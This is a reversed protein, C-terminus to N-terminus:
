GKFNGIYAIEVANKKILKPYKENKDPRATWGRGEYVNFDSGALFSFLQSLIFCLWKLCANIQFIGWDSLKCKKGNIEINYTSKEGKKHFM